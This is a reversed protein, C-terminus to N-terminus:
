EYLAFKQIEEIVRLKNFIARYEHNSKALIHILSLNVKVLTLQLKLLKLTQKFLARVNHM